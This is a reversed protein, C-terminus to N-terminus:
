RMNHAYYTCQLVEAWGVTSNGCVFSDNAHSIYGLDKLTDYLWYFKKHIYIDTEPRERGVICASIHLGNVIMKPDGNEYRTLEVDIPFDHWLTIYDRGQEVVVLFHQQTPSIGSFTLSDDGTAHLSCTIIGYKLCLMTTLRTETTVEYRAMADALIHHISM